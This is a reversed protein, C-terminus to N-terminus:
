KTVANSVFRYMTVLGISLLAGGIIDSLWHVGCILRGVVMFAIFAGIVFSIYYRLKKGKIRNNFQMLATSMVCIVLMTTSSPYSAELYGNILVPRYNIVFKEFFLYAAMVVIYFGGLTLISYDVKKISKRNILQALGFVFFGFAVAVPVLGLWDTVNYLWMHVGTINHVFMNVSAMGVISKNPGVAKVDVLSILITWLVFAVLAIISIYLNNKNRKQM